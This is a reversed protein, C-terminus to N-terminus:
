KERTHRTRESARCAREALHELAQHKGVIVAADRRLGAIEAALQTRRSVIARRRAETWALRLAQQVPPLAEGGEALDRAAIGALSSLESVLGRDEARAADLRALDRERRAAFLAALRTLDAPKM